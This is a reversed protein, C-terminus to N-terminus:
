EAADAFEADEPSYLFYERNTHVGATAIHNLIWLEREDSHIDTRSRYWPLWDLDFKGESGRNCRKCTLLLNNLDSRGEKSVPIIHDFEYGNTKNCKVRCYACRNGLVDELHAIDNGTIAGSARRILASTRRSAKGKESQLWERNKVKYVESSRYRKQKAKVEPQADYVRRKSKFEPSACYEKRWAKVEPKADHEKQWVRCECCSTVPKGRAGIFSEVPKRNWCNSCRHM